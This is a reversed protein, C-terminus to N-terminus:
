RTRCAPRRAVAQRRPQLVRQRHIIGVLLAILVQWSPWDRARFPQRRHRIRRCSHVDSMWFAFINYTGWKQEKLPALDDNTLRPDYGPKIAAKAAPPEHERVVKGAPDAPPGPTIGLVPQTAM